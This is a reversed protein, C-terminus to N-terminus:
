HIAVTSLAEAIYAGRAGFAANIRKTAEYGGSYADELISASVDIISETQVLNLQHKAKEHEETKFKNQYRELEIEMMQNLVKESPQYQKKADVVTSLSLLSFTLFTLISIRKM